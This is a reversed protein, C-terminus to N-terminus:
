AELILPAATGSVQTQLLFRLAEGTVPHVIILAAVLDAGRTFAAVQADAPQWDRHRSYPLAPNAPRVGAALINM